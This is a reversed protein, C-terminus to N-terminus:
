ELAPPPTLRTSSTQPRSNTFIMHNQKIPSVSSTNISGRPNSINGGRSLPAIGNTTQPRTPTPSRSVELHSIKLDSVAFKILASTLVEKRM